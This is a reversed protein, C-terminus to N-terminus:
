EQTEQLKRAARWQNAVRKDSRRAEDALWANVGAVVALLAVTAAWGPGLNWAAVAAAALIAAALWTPCTNM